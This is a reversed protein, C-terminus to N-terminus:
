RVEGVWCGKIVKNRKLKPYPIGMTASKRWVLALPKTGLNYNEFHCALERAGLVEDLARRTPRRAGEIFCVTGSKIFHFGDPDSFTGDFIVLEFDGEIRERRALDTVLGFNGPASLWLHSFSRSNAGIKPGM